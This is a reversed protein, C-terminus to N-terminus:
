PNLMATLQSTPRLILESGSTSHSHHLGAAAAGILGKPQSGGCAALTARFSWFFLFFSSSLQIAAVGTGPDPGRSPKVSGNLSGQVTGEVSSPLQDPRGPFVAMHGLSADLWSCCQCGMCKCSAVRSRRACGLLDEPPVVAYHGLLVWQLAFSLLSTESGLMSRHLSKGCGESRFATNLMWDGGPPLCEISDHLFWCLFWGGQQGM